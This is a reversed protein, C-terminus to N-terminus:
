YRGSLQRISEYEASEKGALQKRTEIFGTGRIVELTSNFQEMGEELVISHSVSSIYYEPKIASAPSADLIIYRGPQWKESGKLAFSGCEYASNHRFAAALTQNLKSALIAPDSIRGGAMGFYPTDCEFRRFGFRNLGADRDDMPLFVPNETLEEISKAGQLAAAKFSTDDGLTTNTPYTFYYNKLERESRTLNVSIIDSPTFIQPNGLTKEYTPDNGQILGGDLDKWPTKRFVLAPGDGPLDTIYLENWPTNAYFGMFDWVSGDEQVLSFSQLYGDISDSGIYSIPPADSYFRRIKDLQGQAVTFLEGIIISPLGEEIKAGWKRAIKEFSPLSSIQMDTDVEKLFYIYSIELIKGFDRGQINYARVPRGSEDVSVAMSVSDIFGRMLIPIERSAHDRTIRIEIYDMPALHHYWSLGNEDRIPLLSIQFSGSPQSIDKSTSISRVAHTIDIKKRDRYTQVEVKARINHTRIM